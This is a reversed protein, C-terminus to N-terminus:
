KWTPVGSTPISHWDRLGMPNRPHGEATPYQENAETRRQIQFDIPLGTEQQGWISMARNMLRVRVLTEGRGDDGDQQSWRADFEDDDFILRIDVDRHGATRMASGVLYPVEGWLALVKQCWEELREFDSMLLYGARREGAM